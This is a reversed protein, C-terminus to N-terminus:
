FHFNKNVRLNYSEYSTHTHTHTHQKLAYNTKTMMSECEM